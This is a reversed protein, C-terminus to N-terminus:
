FTKSLTAFTALQVVIVQYLSVHSGSVSNSEVRDASWKGYYLWKLSTLKDSRLQSIKRKVEKKAILEWWSAPDMNCTVHLNCGRTIIACYSNPHTDIPYYFLKSPKTIFKVRSFFHKGVYTRVTCRLAENQTNDLLGKFSRHATSAGLTSEDNDNGASAAQSATAGHPVQIDVVPAGQTGGGETAPAPAPPDVAASNLPTTSTPPPSKLRPPDITATTTSDDEPVVEAKKAVKKRPSAPKKAAKKRKPPM